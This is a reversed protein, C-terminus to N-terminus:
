IMYGHERYYREAAPHLPVGVNKWIEAPDIPYVLDSKELPLGKFSMEFLHKYEVVIKTILYVLDDDVDNRTFLLWGSWDLTPTDRKVAGDIMGKSLVARRFGYDKVLNDLVDDRIPLFIMERSKTLKEWPPTKRGEHVVMDSKGQIAATVVKFLYDEHSVEWGSAAREQLPMGYAELIKEVAFGIPSDNGPVMFRLKKDKLEEISKIGSEAPVAWVMRDDHPFSLIARLKDMKKHYPGVGRYAMTACAPPTTIGLEAEGKAVASVSTLDGSILNITMRKMSPMEIGLLMSIWSFFLGFWPVPDSRMTLTREQENM